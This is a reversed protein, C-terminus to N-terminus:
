RNSKKQVLNEQTGCIMVIVQNKQPINEKSQPSISKTEPLDRKAFTPTDFERTNVDWFDDETKKAHQNDKVSPEISGEASHVLSTERQSASKVENSKSSHKLELPLSSNTVQQSNTGKTGFIDDDSSSEVLDIPRNEGTAKQLDIKNLGEINMLDRLDPLPASQAEVPNEKETKAKAGDNSSRTRRPLFFFSRRKQKDKV